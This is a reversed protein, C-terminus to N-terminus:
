ALVQVSGPMGARAAPAIKPSALRWLRRYPARLKEEGIRFRLCRRGRRCAVEGDGRSKCHWVLGDAVGVVRLVPAPREVRSPILM